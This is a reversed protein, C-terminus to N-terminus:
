DMEKFADVTSSICCSICYKIDQKVLTEHTKHCEHQMSNLCLPKVECLNKPQILGLVKRQNPWWGLHLISSSWVTGGKIICTLPSTPLLYQGVSCYISPLPWSGAKAPRCKPPLVWVARQITPHCRGYSLLSLTSGWVKWGM